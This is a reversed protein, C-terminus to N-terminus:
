EYPMVVQNENEREALQQRVDAQTVGGKYTSQQSMDKKKLSFILFLYLFFFFDKKERRGEGKMKFRVQSAVVRRSGVHTKSRNANTLQKIQHLINESISNGALDLQIITTNQELSALIAKAGQNGIDNWRLDISTLIQNNRIVNSILQAGLANIKNNKLDLHTVSRNQSLYSCLAEM